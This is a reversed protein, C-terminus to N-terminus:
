TRIRSRVSRRPTAAKARCGGVFGPAADARANVPELAEVFPALRPDDLPALLRSVNVQALRHGSVARLGGAPPALARSRTPFSPVAHWLTTLPVEGAVAITAAHIAEAVEPGTITAGVLVGRDEDVVIRATGAAGRGVFSGGANGGTAVDVARVRLGRQEAAALTLGVAGVQPDTFVVRPSAIGDVRLQVDHGLIRDACLRGQYKGMHTLLARGNVDGVAYLWDHGAVRLDDGVELPGGDADLGVSELGIDATGPTRGLAALVEDAELLRGDSLTLTVTAGREVTAVSSDLMVVVGAERLSAGVQEGAFPEERELLRSGRHVITVQSGLAAWAQAMEVGVVGGGLVILRGPPEAATAAEVNTWPRSERLGPIPPIAPRSGTAVVM